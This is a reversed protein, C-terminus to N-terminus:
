GLDSLASGGGCGLNNRSVRPLCDPVYNRCFALPPPSRCLYYRVIASRIVLGRSGNGEAKRYERGGM